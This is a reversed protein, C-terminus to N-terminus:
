ADTPAMQACARVVLMELGVEPEIRGTKIGYDLAVIERQLHELEAMRFRGAQAQLKRLLGTYTTRLGLQKLIEAPTARRRSQEGVIILMRAQRAIMTLLQLPHQGKDLLLRVQEMARDVQRMGISDVLDFIEAEHAEPVHERVVQEDIPRAYGVSAALVKIWGDIQRLDGRTDRILMRVAPLTISPGEAQAKSSVWAELKPGELRAYALEHGIESQGALAVVPHSPPLTANEVLLLRATDPLRSLGAVLADLEDRVGQSAKSLRELLGQVIVLRREGFFPVAYCANLVEGVAITRGDLEVINMDGVTDGAVRARLDAVREAKLYEEDGHLIYFM